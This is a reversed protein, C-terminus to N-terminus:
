KAAGSWTSEHIFFGSRGESGNELVILLKLNKSENKTTGSTTAVNVPVIVQWYKKGDKPNIFGKDGGVMKIQGIVTVTIIQKRDILTKRLGQMELDNVYAKFGAKTFFRQYSELDHNFDLFSFSYATSVARVVWDTVTTETHRPLPLTILRGAQPKNNIKSVQIVAGAEQPKYAFFYAWILIFSLLYCAIALGDWLRMRKYEPFSELDKIFVSNKPHPTLWMSLKNFIM